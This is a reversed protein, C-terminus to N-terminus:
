IIIVKIEKLILQLSNLICTSRLSHNSVKRPFIELENRFHALITDKQSKTGYQKNTLPNLWWPLSVWGLLIFSFNLAKNKLSHSFTGMNPHLATLISTDFYTDM